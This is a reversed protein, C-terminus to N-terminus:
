ERAERRAVLHPTREDLLAVVGDAARTYGYHGALVGLTAVLIGQAHVHHLPRGSWGHRAAWERISMELGLVFWACRGCASGMGGLVVLADHTNMRAQHAGDSATASRPMRLLKSTPISGFAAGRFDQHFRDGALRMDVSITGNAQMTGLLYTARRRVVPKGDEKLHVEEFAGHQQRWSSPRGEQDAETQQSKRARKPSRM